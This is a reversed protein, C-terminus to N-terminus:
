VEDVFNSSRVSFAIPFDTGNAEETVPLKQNIGKAVRRWGVNQDVLTMDPSIDVLGGTWM